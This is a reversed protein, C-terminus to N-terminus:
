EQLLTVLSSWHSSSGIVSLVTWFSNQKAIKNPLALFNQVELLTFNSINNKLRYLHLKTDWIM